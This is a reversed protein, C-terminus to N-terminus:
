ATSSEFTVSSSNVMSGSLCFPLARAERELKRKAQNERPPQLIRVSLPGSVNTAAVIIRALCAERVRMACYRYAGEKDTTTQLGSLAEDDRIDYRQAEKRFGGSVDQARRQGHRLREAADRPHESQTRLLRSWISCLCCSSSVVGLNTRRTKM